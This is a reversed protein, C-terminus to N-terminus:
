VGAAPPEGHRPPPVRRVAADISRQRLTEPWVWHRGDHECYRLSGKCGSHRECGVADAVPESACTMCRAWGRAASEGYDPFHRDNRGHVLLVDISEPAPCNLSGFDSELLGAGSAVIASPRLVGPTPSQLAVVQALTGGDSHGVFVIRMADICWSRTLVEPVRALRAALAPSLPRSAVYAVILGQATAAHTLGVFRETLGPGFGAPSFVVLLGHPHDARYNGPARVRIRPLEDEQQAAVAAPSTPACSAGSSKAPYAFDAPRLDEGWYLTHWAALALLAAVCLAGVMWGLLAGTQQAPRSVCRHLIPIPRRRM